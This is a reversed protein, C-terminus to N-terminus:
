EFNVECTFKAKRDIDVQTITVTNGYNAHDSTWQEDIKGNEDYKSWSFGSPLFMDTIDLSGRMVRATLVANIEGNIFITGNSNEILVITPSVGDAVATITCYATYNTLGTYTLKIYYTGNFFKDKFSAYNFDYYLGGAALPEWKNYDNSGEWSLQTDLDITFGTAIAKLQITSSTPTGTSDVKFMFGTDSQIELKKSDSVVQSVDGITMNGIKGGTAYITGTFEAGTAKMYGDEYVIFEQDSDENGAHIVEHISANDTKTEELYGISVTSKSGDGVVLKNKIWLNGDSGTELVPKGTKESIRIGYIADADPSSNNILGIKIREKDAGDIVQFDNDSTISIYGKEGEGAENTHRSKLFFGEWTLGFDAAKKIQSIDTPIFSDQGRYGYLGFQDFRIFKEFNYYAPNQLDDRSFQYANLGNSDWRFSSFAGGIINISSADIQGSSIHNANIGSGTIGANWTSGGDKTLFIGGSVIRVIENPKLLNTVLIGTDTIEVSQDKANALTITNHLFSNQLTQPEIIGTTTVVGAAREYSGTQYQLSQTTATIRQFLDEFQTKYNQIKIQNSEPSDLNYTIESVIVEERYPTKVGNISVWGFFETDEIYTKDGLHFQYNEYEEVQSLELVDITYSINPSSSTYLVSEADLYYLNDDIYDESIWSGEQIFRSYKQYFRLNLERKAEAKSELEETITKYRTEANSLNTKYQNSLTSFAPIKKNLLGISAVLKQVGEDKDLLKQITSSPNSVTLQEYTYGCYKKLEAKQSLLLEESEALSTSYAQYGSQLELMSNSIESQEIILDERNKNIERLQTYYGIFGGGNFYLDNNVETFNLLGQRIYHNFNLLFNEKGPNDQARAISCSGNEAFENSNAKVIIKSVIQDSNLTRQISKLNIGYRFGIDNDQGIYNHFSVWKLQRHDADMEIEGTADNHEIRFDAWCEFTECLTQILNFRNSESQTISRVKANDASFVSSYQTSPTDGRYIFKIDDVSTADKNNEPNYYYYITNVKADPTNGPIVMKNSGDYRLPFLQIDEIGFANATTIIDGVGYLFLGINKSILDKYSLEKECKAIVYQYEGDTIMNNSFDFYETVLTYNTNSLTYEAIKARIGKNNPVNNSLNNSNSAGYKYKIRFVYSEGKAFSNIKTQNDKIGSNYVLGGSKEFKLKLYSGFNTTAFNKVNAVSPYIYQDIVAGNGALWGETTTFYESNTIFNTILTPSIYETETFGYIENGSSDEYISVYKDISSEYKTREKKVTREGRYDSSISIQDVFDPTMINTTVVYDTTYETYFEPCDILVRDDDKVYAGDAKYLFQFFSKEGAITSYFAYITAGKPITVSKKKDNDNIDYATISRNLVIQYLAEENKQVVVESSNLDVRWDTGELIYEGLEVITGQNNELKSDLELEFGTKSLENIFSDKATYTFTHNESNEQINKIVLDYWKGDYKLKIKRENVLFGIFPNDELEDTDENYYKYYISFTFEATGNVNVKLKPEFARIPTDMTNSGIVAIKVEKYYQEYTIASTVPDKVEVKELVDEWLSIEYPKKLVNSM